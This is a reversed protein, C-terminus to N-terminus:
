LVTDVGMAISIAPWQDALAKWIARLKTAGSMGTTDFNFSQAMALLQTRVGAPLQNFQTDLTVGGTFIRSVGQGALRQHIFAFVSVVRLVSGYSMAPGVWGAPINLAELASQVAAVQAGVSQQLDPVAVVDVHGAMTAHVGAPVDKAVILFTPEAGFDTTSISTVGGATLESVYKGVLYGPKSGAISPMLYVNITM